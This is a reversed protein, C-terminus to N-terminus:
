NKIKKKVTSSVYYARLIAATVIKMLRMMMTMMIIMLILAKEVGSDRYGHSSAIVPVGHLQVDGCHNVLRPVPGQLSTRSGTKM